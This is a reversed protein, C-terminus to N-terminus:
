YGHPIPDLAGPKLPRASTACDLEPGSRESNCCMEEVGQPLSPLGSPLLLLASLTSTKKTTKRKKAVNYPM